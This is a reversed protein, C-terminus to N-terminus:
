HYKAAQVYQIVTFIKNAHWDKCLQQFDMQLILSLVMEKKKRVESELDVFIERNMKNNNKVLKHNQYKASEQHYMQSVSAAAVQSHVVLSLGPAGM